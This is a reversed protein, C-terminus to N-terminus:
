KFAIYKITATGTPTGSKTWSVTFGDADFSSITANQSQSSGTDSLTICNSSTSGMSSQIAESPFMARNNTADTSGCFWAGEGGIVGYFFIARPTFGVGTEAVTGTAATMDRTISGTFYSASQESVLGIRM